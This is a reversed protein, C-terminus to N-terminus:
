DMGPPIFVTGKVEGETVEVRQIEPELCWREATASTLTIHHKFGRTLHGEYVSFMVKVHTQVNNKRFRDIWIWIWIIQWNLAHCYFIKGRM